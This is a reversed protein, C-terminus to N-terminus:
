KIGDTRSGIDPNLVYNNECQYQLFVRGCMVGSSCPFYVHMKRTLNGVNCIIRKGLYGVHMQVLIMVSYIM